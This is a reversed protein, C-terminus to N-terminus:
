WELLIMQILTTIELYLAHSQNKIKYSQTKVLVDKIKSSESKSGRKFKILMEDSENNLANVRSAKIQM